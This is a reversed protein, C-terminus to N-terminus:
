SVKKKRSKKVRLRTAERNAEQGCPVCLKQRNSIFEFETGCSCKKLKVTVDLNKKLNLLIEWGFSDWLNKKFKSESEYLYKVLVDVVVDIEALKLLENRVYQVYHVEVPTDGQGKLQAEPIHNYRTLERYRNTIRIDESIGKNKLLITYDFEGTNFTIRKNSIMKFLRNVTSKNRRAVQKSKKGKAFKFFAPVKSKTLKDFEEQLELPVEALFKTKAYDIAQNALYVLKKVQAIDEDKLYDKNLLKTISNSVEGINMEYAAELSDYIAKNTILEKESVGLEYDLSVMGEVHREAVKIFKKDSVILAQDGDNDFMLIKSLDDHISTYIGKTTFWEGIEENLVNKRICHENLNLHPSRLVDLPQKDDYLACSVKKDQLLGTVEELKFLHQCFAYLDPIMYVRKTGELIIKGARADKVLSKKKDKIMEKVYPDNLLDNHFLLAEQIPRKYKNTEVAELTSLAREITSAVGEIEENTIKVFEKLEDDDTKILTQLMQYNLKKNTFDDAELSEEDCIAFECNHKEFMHKFLDWGKLKLKDVEVEDSYYKWMKFQSATFIVRIDQKIIDWDKGWVDTVIPSAEKHKRIFAHFDFPSLLGKFAGAGRFQINKNSVSELCIGCGDMANFDIEMPKKEIQYQSDIHEVTKGKIIFNFDPVVIAKDIDFEKWEISSSACLAQYAIYKNLSIGGQENIREKTLGANLKDKVKEYSSEKIFCLKKNRIQGSSSFCYVYKDGNYLYGNHILQEMIKHYFVEVIMFETTVSNIEINLSRSFTSEFQGIIKEEKLKSENLERVGEFSDMLAYFELNIADLIDGTKSFGSAKIVDEYQKSLKLIQGEIIFKSEETEVKMLKKNLKDMDKKYYKVTYFKNKLEAEENTYFVSTSIGYLYIQNTQKTM